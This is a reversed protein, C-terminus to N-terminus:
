HKKWKKKKKREMIQKKENAEEKGREEKFLQMPKQTHTHTHTHEHSYERGEGREREREKRRCNEILEILLLSSSFFHAKKGKKLKTRKTECSWHMIRNSSIKM